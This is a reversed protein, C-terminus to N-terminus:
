VDRLCFNTPTLLNYYKTPFDSREMVLPMPRYGALELAKILCLEVEMRVSGGSIALFHQTKPPTEGLACGFSDRYRRSVKVLRRQRRRANLSTWHLIKHKVIRTAQLLGLTEFVSQLAFKLNM